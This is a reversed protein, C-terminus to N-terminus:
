AIDNIVNAKQKLLLDCFYMLGKVHQLTVLYVFVM